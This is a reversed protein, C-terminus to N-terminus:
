PEKKDAGGEPPHALRPSGAIPCTCAPHLRQPPRSGKAVPPSWHRPLKGTAFPERGRRPASDRTAQHRRIRKPRRFASTTPRIPTPIDGTTSNHPSLPSVPQEGPSSTISGRAAAGGLYGSPAAVQALRTPLPPLAGPAAHAEGPPHHTPAATACSISMRDSYRISHGNELDPNPWGETAPQRRSPHAVSTM